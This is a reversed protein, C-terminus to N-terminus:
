AHRKRAAGVLGLLVPALLWASTPLPVPAAVPDATLQVGDLNLIQPFAGPLFTALFQLTQTTSSATFHMVDTLWVTNGLTSLRTESGFTVQWQALMNPNTHDENSHFTLTYHGGVTLGGITQKIGGANFRPAFDDLDQIGLYSGGDPSSNGPTFTNFLEGGPNLLEWVALKDNPFSMEGNDVLNVVTSAQTATGLLFSLSSVLCARMSASMM